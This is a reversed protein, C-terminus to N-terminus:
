RAWEAGCAFRQPTLSSASRMCVCPCPGPWSSCICSQYRNCSYRLSTAAARRSARQACLSKAESYWTACQHADGMRSARGTNGRRICAMHHRLRLGRLCRLANHLLDNGRGSQLECVGELSVGCPPLLLLLAKERLPPLVVASVVRVSKALQERVQMMLTLDASPPPVLPHQHWCAQARTIHASM